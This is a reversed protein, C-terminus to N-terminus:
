GFLAPAVGLALTAAVAGLCAATMWAATKWFNDGDVDQM